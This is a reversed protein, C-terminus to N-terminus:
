WTVAHVEDVSTALLIVDKLQRARLMHERKHNYAARGLARVAANDLEIVDDDMTIFGTSFEPDDVAMSFSGAINTLADPYSDFAHGDHEFGAAIAFDRDVDIAKTRDRKVDDLSPPEGPAVDEGVIPWLQWEGNKFHRGFGDKAEMPQIDTSDAPLYFRGPELQCEDAVTTGLYALTVPDFAYVTKQEM